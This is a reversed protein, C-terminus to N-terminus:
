SVVAMETYKTPFPRGPGGRRDSLGCKQRYRRILRTRQASSLGTTRELYRRLSGKDPKSLRWYAFRRLVRELHAYAQEQSPALTAGKPTGALFARMDDLTKHTELDLQLIM